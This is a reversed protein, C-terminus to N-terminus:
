DDFDDGYENTQNLVDDGGDEEADREPEAACVGYDLNISDGGDLDGGIVDGDGEDDDSLGDLFSNIDVSPQKRPAENAKEEQGSSSNNQFQKFYNDDMLDNTTLGGAGGGGAGGDGEGEDDDGLLSDINYSVEKLRLNQTMVGEEVEGDDYDIRYSEGHNKVDSVVGPYWKGRSRFNGEVRNGIAYLPGSLNTPSDTHPSDVVDHQPQQTPWSIEEPQLARLISSGSVNRQTRPSSGDTFLLNYTGDRHVKEIIAIREIKKGGGPVSCEVSVRDEPLYMRPSSSPSQPQQQGQQQQQQQPKTQQSGSTSSPTYRINEESVQGEEDGDRYRIRYGVGGGSGSSATVGLIIGPYWSGGRQFNGEVEDGVQYKSQLPLSNPMDTGKRPSSNVASASVNGKGHSGQHSPSSSSASHHSHVVYALIVTGAARGQGNVLPINIRIESDYPSHIAQSLSGEGTGIVTDKLPGMNKDLVMVRIPIKKLMEPTADFEIGESPHFEWMVDSGGEDQVSTTMSWSDGYSLMAYPDNEGSLYEVHRLGNGSLSRISICVSEKASFSHTPVSTLLSQRRPSPEQEQEQKQEQQGQGKGQREGMVLIVDRSVDFERGGEEYQVDYLDKHANYGCVRGELLVEEAGAEAGVGASGIVKRVEIKCGMPLPTHQPLTLGKNTVLYAEVSSEGGMGVVNEESMEYLFDPEKPRSNPPINSANATLNVPAVSPAAAPATPNPPDFTTLIPDLYDLANNTKSASGKSGASKPRRTKASSPRSSSPKASHHDTEDIRSHHFKSANTAATTTELKELVQQYGRSLRTIEAKL